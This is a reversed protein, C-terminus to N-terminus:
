GLRQRLGAVPGFDLVSEGAIVCCRCDRWRRLGAVNVGAADASYAPLVLRGEGVLFCPVSGSGRLRVVPHEHGQVVPGAPLAEHGHLVTWGGLVIGAPFLPIGAAEWTADAGRDHNGPVVGALELGAEGLWDVFCALVEGCRGDELLDGAVIVRRAGTAACAAALPALEREVPVEPVADGAKRRALSYGLHLDAVVATATPLHVAVRQPTLLWDDAVIM